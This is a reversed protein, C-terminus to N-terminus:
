TRAELPPFCQGRKRRCDSNISKIEQRIMEMSGNGGLYDGHPGARGRRHGGRLRGFFAHALLLDLAWRRVDGEM